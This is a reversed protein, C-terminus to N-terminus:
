LGTKLYFGSVKLRKGPVCLVILACACESVRTCVTVPKTHSYIRPALNESVARTLPLTVNTGNRTGRPRNQRNRLFVRGGNKGLSLRPLILAVMQNMKKRAKGFLLVSSKAGLRVNSRNAAQTYTQSVTHTLTHQHSLPPFLSKM